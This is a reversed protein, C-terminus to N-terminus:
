RDGPHPGSQFRQDYQRQLEGGGRHGSRPADVQMVVAPIVIGSNPPNLLRRDRPGSPVGPPIPM